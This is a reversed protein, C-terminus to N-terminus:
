SLTRSSVRLSLCWALVLALIPSIFVPYFFAAFWFELGSQPNTPDYEFDIWALGIGLVAAAIASLVLSLGFKTLFAGFSVTEPLQMFEPWKRCIAWTAVCTILVIITDELPADIGSLIRQISPSVMILFSLFWMLSLAFLIELGRKRITGLFTKLLNM